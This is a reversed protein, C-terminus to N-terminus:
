NKAKQIQWHEDFFGADLIRGPWRPGPPTDLDILAWDPLKPTQKANSGYADTRFDLGSNLLVYRDPHLPNPYILIPAHHSSDLTQDGFVLEKANWKLPLGAKLAKSLVKNSSPDGWLVLNKSQIDARTVDKDDIVPLDARFVDRWMKVAHDLEAQTWKGVTDNLPKGTPRVFLFPSMFTDDVPGTLGPRKRLREKPQGLSWRGADKFLELDRATGPKIPKLIQDDIQIEAPAEILLKLATVNTTHLRVLRPSVIQARVDAREWHREMGEIEVWEARPYQLTYTTLHVETPRPDRGQEVLKDLRAAIQDRTEPHYKHGTQPGILHELKLGEATLSKEMIDAAQKQGDIEGSYAITPCNFLNGAYVTADYWRWLTQEWSPPAEKGSFIKAFVATEAFGAGPAAACWLGSHHTSLHWTSAGGMSFGAVVLRRSDISYQSLVAGMAEFVDVEGAFKNANCFRGYPHLVITDPPTFPGPSSERESLFALETRKEGRGALWVYLPRSKDDRPKVNSPVVLGYPQVSGDLKSQYGRVVLGTASLWPAQGSRLQDAREHGQRLLTKAFTIQKPEFFEDYRLAWDVAKHFIEIDPLLALHAADSKFKKKLDSIEKGLSTVGATLEQRDADPVSIGPPPIHPPPTQADATGFLLPLLIAFALCRSWPETM